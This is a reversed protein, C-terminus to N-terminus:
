ATGETKSKAAGTAQTTEQQPSAPPAQAAPTNTGRPIGEQTQWRQRSQEEGLDLEKRIQQQMAQHTQNVMEQVGGKLTSGLEKLEKMEAHDFVQERVTEKAENAARKLDALTRGVTRAITPLEKPGIFILAVVLILFMENMGIGFM